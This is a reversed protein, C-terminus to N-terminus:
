ATKRCKNDEQIAKKNASRELHRAYKKLFQKIVPESFGCVKNKYGYCQVFRRTDPRVELTFWPKDPDSTRRIFIINTTGEVHRETYIKGVCHELIKGESQIDTPKEPIVAMIGDSEFEYGQKRLKEARKECKKFNAANKAYELKEIQEDHAKQLDDPFAIKRENLPAGNAIAATIYDGYIKIDKDALYEIIREPPFEPINKCLRMIERGNAHHTYDDIGDLLAAITEPEAGKVEQFLTIATEIDKCWVRSKHGILEFTRRIKRETAANIGYFMKKPSRQTFDIHRTRKAPKDKWVRDYAIGEYGMKYFLETLPEEIFRMLCRISLNHETCYNYIKELFTGALKEEGLENWMRPLPERAEKPFRTKMWEKRNTAWDKWWYEFTEACGPSMETKRQYQVEVSAPANDSWDKLILCFEYLIVKKPNEVDWARIYHADRLCKKDLNGKRAEVFAGCEPCVTYGHTPRCFSDYSPKKPIYKRCEDLAPAVNESRKGCATCIGYYRKGTPKKAGTLVDEPTFYKEPYVFMFKRAFRRVSENVIEAPIAIDSM